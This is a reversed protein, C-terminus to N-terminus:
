LYKLFDSKYVQRIRLSKTVNTLYTHFIQCIKRTM